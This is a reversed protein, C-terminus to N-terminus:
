AGTAGEITAIRGELYNIYAVLSDYTLLSNGTLNSLTGIRSNLDTLATAVVEENDEIEAKTVYNALVSSDFTGTDGKPGTIGTDGKPGQAGTAGTDGKPGTVGVAGAAGTVGNILTNVETKTYVESKNAKNTNLATLAAATVEGDNDLELSLLDLLEKVSADHEVKPTKIDKTTKGYADEGEQAANIEEQTYYVAESDTIKGLNGLKNSLETKTTYDELASSDFTGTDGKPGQAGTAGTDGKPGQAGTAGTDGKIGVVEGHESIWDAIEKLTDLEEPAAGM